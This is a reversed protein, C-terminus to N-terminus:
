AHLVPSQAPQSNICGAQRSNNLTNEVGSQLIHHSRKGAVGLAAGCARCPCHARLGLAQPAPPLPEQSLLSGGHVGLADDRAGGPPNPWGHHASSRKSPGESVMMIAMVVMVMMVM